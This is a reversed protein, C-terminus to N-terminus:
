AALTTSDFHLVTGGASRLFVQDRVAPDQELSANFRAARKTAEAYSLPIGETDCSWVGPERERVATLVGGSDFETVCVAWPGGSIQELELM